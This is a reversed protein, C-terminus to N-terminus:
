HVTAGETDFADLVDLAALSAIDSSLKKIEDATFVVSIIMGNMWDLLMILYTGDKEEASNTPMMRQTIHTANSDYANQMIQKGDRSQMFEDMPFIRVKM